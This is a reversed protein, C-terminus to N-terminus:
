GTKCYGEYLEAQGRERVTAEDKEFVGLMNWPWETIYLLLLWIEGGVAVEELSELEEEMNM